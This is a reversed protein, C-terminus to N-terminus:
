ALPLGAADILGLARARAVTIGRGYNGAGLVPDGQAPIAFSWGTSPDRAVLRDSELARRVAAAWTRHTSVVPATPGGHCGPRLEVRFNSM